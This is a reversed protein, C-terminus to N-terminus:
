IREDHIRSHDKGARRLIFPIAERLSRVVLDPGIPRREDYNHDVFVTAVGAAQGAAIDRWRDGVLVSRDLALGHRAAADLIMGPRPKRCACEDADDHPCVVIDTLPLQRLLEENIEDVIARSVKGRAIDPQNTVAILRVGAQVLTACAESVYPLIEVDDARPPPHPVGDIIPAANLVGDRDLFAAPPRVPTL